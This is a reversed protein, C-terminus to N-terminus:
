QRGADHNRRQDPNGGATPRCRGAVPRGICDPEDRRGNSDLQRHDSATRINAGLGIQVGQWSFGGRQEALDEDAVVELGALADEDISQLAAEVADTTSPIASPAEPATAAILLWALIGYRVTGVNVDLLTQPTLQYSTPLHRSIDGAVHLAAGEMPAKSWPGWESERNFALRDNKRVVMLAIGNWVKMFDDVSYQNLGLMPDGVLVRGDRVGKILVFHKFGKLNVLVIAPRELKLLADRDLRYGEARLGVSGLYSKMDLMSFGVKRIAERDGAQWMSTFAAQEPTPRDQHYTLLTAV